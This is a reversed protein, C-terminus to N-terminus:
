FTTPSFLFKWYDMKISSEFVVVYDGALCFSHISQLSRLKFTHSKILKMDKTCHSLTLTWNKFDTGINFIDKNVPDVKAHASYGTKIWGFDNEGVTHLDNKRM